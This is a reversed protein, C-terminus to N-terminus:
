VDRHTISKISAADMVQALPLLNPGPFRPNKPGTFHCRASLRTGNPAWVFINALSLGLLHLAWSTPKLAWVRHPTPSCTCSSLSSLHMFSSLRGAGGGGGGMGWGYLGKSPVIPLDVADYLTCLTRRLYM